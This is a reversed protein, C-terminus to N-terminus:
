IQQLQPSPGWADPLGLEKEDLLRKEEPSLLIVVSAYPLDLDPRAAFRFPMISGTFGVSGSVELLRVETGSPDDIMFIQTIDPDAKRHANALDQAVQQITRMSAM